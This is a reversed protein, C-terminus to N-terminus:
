GNLRRLALSWPLRRARVRMKEYANRAEDVSIVGNRVMQEVLWVTGNVKVDEERAAKVLEQDGTLLPCGEQRALALAFCDNRSPRRYRAVLNEADVMTEPQLEAIHLGLRPLHSHHEELEDHYLIDPICFEFPLRFMSELLEGEEVDILINADSILLQM